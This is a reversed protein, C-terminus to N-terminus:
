LSARDEETLRVYRRTAPCPDDLVRGELVKLMEFVGQDVFPKDLVAASGRFLKPLENSNGTIFGVKLGLREILARAVKPGTMGDSLNLDILAADPRQEEALALATDFSDALGVVGHGASVALMQLDLAIFPEDEVLILRM